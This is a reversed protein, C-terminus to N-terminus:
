VMTPTMGKDCNGCLSPASEANEERNQLTGAGAKEVSAQHSANISTLDTERM